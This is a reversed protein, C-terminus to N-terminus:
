IGVMRSATTRPKAAHVPPSLSAASYMRSATTARTRERCPSATRRQAREAAAAWNHGRHCLSKQREGPRRGHRQMQRSVHRAGAGSARANGYNMRSKSQTRPTRAAATPAKTAQSTATTDPPTPPPTGCTNNLPLRNTLQRDVQGVAGRGGRACGERGHGRRELSAQATHKRQAGHVGEGDAPEVGAAQRRLFIM